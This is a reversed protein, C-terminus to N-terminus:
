SGRVCRVYGSSGKDDGSVDGDDFRVGWAHSSSGARESATWYHTSATGLLVEKAISPSVEGKDVIGHLERIRPLRWDSKGDLVLAGCYDVAGYWTKTEPPATRQWELKTWGDGVVGAGIAFRPESVTPGTGRVCRVQYGSTKVAYYVNGYDFSVGWASSSSGARETATWYHTQATQPFATQDIM